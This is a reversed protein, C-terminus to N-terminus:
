RLPAATAVVTPPRRLAHAPAYSHAHAQGYPLSRPPRGDGHSITAMIPALTFATSQPAPRSGCAMWGSLGLAAAVGAASALQTLRRPLKM